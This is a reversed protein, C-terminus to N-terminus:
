RLTRMRDSRGERETDRDASLPDAVRKLPTAGIPLAREIELRGGAATMLVRLASVDGCWLTEADKDRATDAGQSTGTRRNSFGLNPRLM